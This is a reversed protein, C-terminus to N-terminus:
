TEQPLGNAHRCHFRLNCASDGRCNAAAAKEDRGLVITLHSGQRSVSILHQSSSALSSLCQSPRQRAGAVGCFGSTVPRSAMPKPQQPERQPRCTSCKVPAPVLLRPRARSPRSGGHHKSVQFPRERTDTRATVGLRIAHLIFNGHVYSSVFSGWNVSHNLLLVPWISM